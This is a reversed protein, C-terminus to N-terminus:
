RNTAQTGRVMGQPLFGGGSDGPDDTVAGTMFQLTAAPQTFVHQEEFKCDALSHPFLQVRSYDTHDQLHFLCLTIIQLIPTHTM